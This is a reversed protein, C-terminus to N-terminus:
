VFKHCHLCKKLNYEEINRINWSKKSPQWPIREEPVTKREVPRGSCSQCRKYSGFRAYELEPSRTNDSTTPKCTKPRVEFLKERNLFDPRSQNWFNKLRKSGMIDGLKQLLRVNEREIKELREREAQVKKPKVTVHAYSLPTKVDIAAKANLVNQRHKQYRQLEWPHILLKERRSIM